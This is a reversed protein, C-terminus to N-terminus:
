FVTNNRMSSQNIMNSVIQELPTMFSKYDAKKESIDNLTSEWHATMDPLTAKKPLAQILSKGVDTALINKGSRKLFKRKFLLEIIGARTAETGLGDTEKLVKKIEHDTVFRAIGTMAALM